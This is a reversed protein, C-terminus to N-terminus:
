AGSTSTRAHIRRGDKTVTFQELDAITRAAHRMDILTTRTSFAGPSTYSDGTVFTTMAGFRGNPSVRARSPLGTLTVTHRARM